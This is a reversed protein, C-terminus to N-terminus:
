LQKGFETVEVKRPYNSRRRSVAREDTEPILVESKQNQLVKLKKLEEGREGCVAGQM